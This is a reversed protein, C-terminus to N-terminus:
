KNLYKMLDEITDIESEEEIPSIALNGEISFGRLVGDKVLKWVNSNNIKASVMWTGDPLDWEVPSIGREKNIIYSEFYFCDEVGYEHMLNVDTNNRDAFYKQAIREIADASFTIYFERGDDIRRYIPKDPILAPGTVIHKEDDVSFKLEVEKSFKLFDEQIAPFDVLSIIQVGQLDTEVDIAYIPLRNYTKQM